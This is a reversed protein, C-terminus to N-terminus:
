RMSGCKTCVIQGVSMKAGCKKCKIDEVGQVYGKYKIPKHGKEEQLKEILWGPLNKKKKPEIKYSSRSPLPSIGPPKVTKDPITVPKKEIHHEPEINCVGRIGRTKQWPYTESKKGTPSTLPVGSKENIHREVRIRAIDIDDDSLIEKKPLSNQILSTLRSKGVDGKYGIYELVDEGYTKRLYENLLCTATKKDTTAMNIM